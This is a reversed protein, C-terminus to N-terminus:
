FYFNSAHAHIEEWSKIIASLIRLDCDSSSRLALHATASRPCIAYYSCADDNYLSIRFCFSMCTVGDLSAGRWLTRDLPSRLFGVKARNRYRNNVAQKFERAITSPIVARVDYPALKLFAIRVLSVRPSPTRFCYDKVLLTKRLCRYKTRSLRCFRDDRSPKTIWWRRLNIKKM